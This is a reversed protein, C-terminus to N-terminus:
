GIKKWIPGDVNFDLLISAERGNIFDQVNKGDYLGFSIFGDGEGDLTWGVVQGAPSRELGLADKAQKVDCLEAGAAVMRAYATANAEARRADALVRALDGETGPMPPQWDAEVVTVAQGRLADAFLGVGATAVTPSEVSLLGRLPAAGANTGTTSTTM